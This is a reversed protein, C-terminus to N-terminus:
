LKTNEKDYTWIYKWVIFAALLGIIAFVGGVFYVIWVGEDVSEIQPLYCIGIGIIAIIWGGLHNQKLHIVSNNDKLVSLTAM